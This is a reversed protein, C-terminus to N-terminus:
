ISPEPNKKQTFITLVVGCLMDFFMAGLFGFAAMMEPTMFASSFSMAQDIQEDSMGREAMQDIQQQKITELFSGDIFKIYIYFFVIYIVTSVLAFWFTIGLGQGYSMFGDGNDLFYKQALFLVVLFIPIGLWRGIGSTQDMGAVSMGVFMVISIVAMIVGYRTGVSRTTVSPAATEEM